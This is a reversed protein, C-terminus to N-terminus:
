FEFEFFDNRSTMFVGKSLVDMGIVVKYPKASLPMAAANLYDPLVITSAINSKDKLFSFEAFYKTRHSIKSTDLTVVSTTGFHKLQLKECLGMDICSTTAGTDMLAVVKESRVNPPPQLLGDHDPEPINNTLIGHVLPQIGNTLPRKITPM